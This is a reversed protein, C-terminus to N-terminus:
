DHVVQEDLVWVDQYCWVVRKVAVFCEFADHASGDAVYCGKLVASGLVDDM